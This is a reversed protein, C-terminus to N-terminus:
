IDPGVYFYGNYTTKKIGEDNWYLITKGPDQKQKTDYNHKVEMYISEAM